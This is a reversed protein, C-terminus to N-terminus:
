PEPERRARRAIRAGDQRACRGPRRSREVGAGPRAMARHDARLPARVILCTLAKYGEIYAEDHKTNLFLNGISYAGGAGIAAKAVHRRSAATATGGEVFGPKLGEYLGWGTLALLALSAGNLTRAHSSLAGFWENRQDTVADLAQPLDGLLADPAAEAARTAAAIRLLAASAASAPASTAAQPASAAAQPARLDKDLRDSRQYPNFASCGAFAVLAVFTASRAAARGKWCPNM